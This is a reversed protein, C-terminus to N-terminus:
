EVAAEFPNVSKPDFINDRGTVRWRAYQESIFPSDAKQELERLKQFYPEAREKTDYAADYQDVGHFYLQQLEVFELLWGANQRQKSTGSHLLESLQKRLDACIADVRKANEEDLAKCRNTIHECFWEPSHAMGNWLSPELLDETIQRLVEAGKEAGALGFLEEALQGHLTHLDAAPDDYLRALYWYNLSPVFWCDLPLYLSVVGRFGYSVLTKVTNRCYGPNLIVDSRYRYHDGTMYDFYFAGQSSQACQAWEYAVQDRVHCVLVSMNEPMAQSPRAFSQPTYALHEVTLDPRVRHLKEAIVRNAKFITEKDRCQACECYGGGDLPWIGLFQFWPKDKAFEALATGYAEVADQNSYCIQGPSRKGDVLAFWEPHESFVTEKPFYYDTSHESMDLVIGRKQVEPLLQDGIEDWLIAHDGCGTDDKRHISTLLFNFGNKAMWDIADRTQELTDHITHYFCIGRYELWPEKQFLFGDELPWRNLHPVTQRTRGPFLFSCGLRRLLAYVGHLLGREQCAELTIREGEQRIRYGDFRLGEGILKLVFSRKALVEAPFMESLYGELETCAFSSIIHDAEKAVEYFVTCQMNKM